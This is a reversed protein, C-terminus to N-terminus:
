RKLEMLYVDSEDAALTVFLRRGDTAFDWRSIRHTPDDRLVLRPTGGLVPVTYISFRRDDARTMVFVTSPDRGFAVFMAYERPRLDLVPHDDRGDVRSARVAAGLGPALGPQHTVYALLAGDWSLRFWRAEVNPPTVRRMDVWRGSADRALVVDYREPGRRAESGSFAFLRTGDASLQPAYLDNRVDTLQQEDTGDIGISYLERSGTRNSHFLIRKDDPSWSPAFDGRPDTTVQVADGGDVRIRYIDANGSRDSDYALWKADHSLSMGEIRQNDSTIQRASAMSAVGTGAPIDVAWINSRNRVVDYAMRTGDSSLSIHRASLGATIRQASDRPQGARTVLQRYVDLTGQANSTYYLSRGDPAWVPSLNVVDSRTVAILTRTAVDVIRVPGASMNDLTAPIGEVFALRTGDPSWALSHAVRNEVLPRAPGSGVPKLWLGTANSYAVSQGDPSWAVDLVPNGPTEVLRKPSGGTAAVVFVSGNGVFAVQSGDPAWAPQTHEGPLEASVDVSREGAIQRVRIHYSGPPGAVYAVFKGDPSIAPDMELTLTTAVSTVRGPRVVAGGRDRALWAAAAGGLAVVIVGGAIMAIRRRRAELGRVGAPASGGSPTDIADLAALLATASQPRDEPHKELCTMVLSGLAEPVLPRRSVIPEPREQVHAALMQALPRGAFPSSGALMEYAVCGFAYIDARHDVNPDAAAQEPAMYAPTGLAVGLSTLASRSGDDHTAAIDFAKAVGFDTVVAVGGSLIINEPKIDRHVVGNGHAYALASAVDRLVHITERVPLEGRSLRARLTEGQVFPMTYFPLGNTDGASLLPVIHPHQLQAAVRIERKFRETSLQGAADPPLVKVVIRRGLAADTAVFVRSMGGGGLEREVQFADGLTSQIQDRLDL